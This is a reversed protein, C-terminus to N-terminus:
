YVSCFHCGEVREQNRESEVGAPAMLAIKQRAEESLGEEEVLLSRFVVEARKTLAFLEEVEREGVTVNRLDVDKVSRLVPELARLCASVECVNSLTVSELSCSEVSEAPSSSEESPSVTMNELYLRKTGAPIRRLAKKLELETEVIGSVSIQRLAPLPLIQFTPCFLASLPRAPSNNWRLSSTSHCLFLQASDFEVTELNISFSSCVHSAPMPVFEVYASYKQCESIDLIQLMPFGRDDVTRLFRFVANLSVNCNRLCLRKLTRLARDRALAAIQDFIVDGLTEEIRLSQLSPVAPSTLLAPLLQLSAPSLHNHALLLHRLNFSKAPVSKVFLSFKEDVSTNVVSFSEWYKSSFIFGMGEGNIPNNDFIINMMGDSRRIMKHITVAGVATIGNNTLNLTVFLPVPLINTRRFVSSLCEIGKDGIVNDSLDIYQLSPFGLRLTDALCAAGINNINNHSLVLRQLPERISPNEFVQLMCKLDDDNTLKESLIVQTSKAEITLVGNTLPVCYTNSDSNYTCAAQQTTSM